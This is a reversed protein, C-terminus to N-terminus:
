GFGKDTLPESLFNGKGSLSDPALFALWVPFIEIKRQFDRDSISKPYPNEFSFRFKVPKAQSKALWVPLIEIKEPKSHM